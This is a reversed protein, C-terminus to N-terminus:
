FYMDGWYWKSGIKVIPVETTYSYGLYGEGESVKVTAMYIRKVKKIDQDEMYNDLEEYKNDIDVELLSQLQVSEDLDEVEEAFAEAMKAESSFDSAIEEYFAPLYVKKLSKLDGTRIAKDFTEVVKTCQAVDRKLSIKQPVGFIFLLLIVAIVGVIIMNKKPMKLGAEKIKPQKAGCKPCVVMDNNLENGCQLCYKSM